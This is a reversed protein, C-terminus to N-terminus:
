TRKLLFFFFFTSRQGIQNWLYKCKFLEALQKWNDQGPLVTKM